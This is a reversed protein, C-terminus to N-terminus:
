NGTLKVQAPLNKWRYRSAFEQLSLTEQGQEKQVVGVLDPELGPAHRYHGDASVATVQNPEAILTARPQGTAADWFRVTRDQNGSAATSGAPSWGVREV